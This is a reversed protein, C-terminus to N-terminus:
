RESKLIFKWFGRLLVSLTLLPIDFTCILVSLSNKKHFITAHSTLSFDGSLMLVYFFFRYWWLRVKSLCPFMNSWRRSNLERDFNQIVSFWISWIEVEGGKKKEGPYTLILETLWQYVNNLFTQKYHFFCLCGEVLFGEWKLFCSFYSLILLVRLSFM